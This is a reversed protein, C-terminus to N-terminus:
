KKKDEKEKWQSPVCRLTKSNSIVCHNCLPSRRNACNGCTHKKAPYFHECEFEYNITVNASDFCKGGVNYKCDNAACKM